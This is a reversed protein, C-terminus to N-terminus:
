EDLFLDDFDELVNKDVRKKSSTVESKEELIEDLEITDEFDKSNFEEEEKSKDNTQNYEEVIDDTIVPLLATLEQDIKAQKKKLKEIRKQKRKETNGTRIYFYIGLGAIILLVICFIVVLVYKLTNSNSSSDDTTPPATVGASTITESSISSTTDDDSETEEEESARNVIIRYEQSEGASNKVIIRVTNKGIKLNSNGSIQPTAYESNAGAKIIVSQTDYSVDVTYDTISPDFTENLPHGTISLRKLSLDSTARTIKLTYTTSESGVLATVTISNDGENLDHSGTGAISVGESATANVVVNKVDSKVILTYSTNDKSFTEKLKYGQVTLTDLKAEVKPAEPTASPTPQPNNEESPTNEETKNGGQTEGEGITPSTPEALKSNTANVPSTPVVLSIIAFLLFLKNIIKKM